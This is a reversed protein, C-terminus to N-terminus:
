PYRREAVASVDLEAPLGGLWDYLAPLQDPVTWLEHLGRDDANLSRMVALGDQGQLLGQFLMARSAPVRVVVIATDRANM